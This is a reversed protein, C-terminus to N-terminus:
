FRYVGGVSAIGNYVYTNDLPMYQGTIIKVAEQSAVGGVVSAVTHIEANAYRTMEHAIKREPDSLLIERVLENEQLQYQIVVKEICQHLSPIDEEEWDM